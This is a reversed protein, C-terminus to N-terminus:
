GSTVAPVVAATAAPAAPGRGGGGGGGRGRGPATGLCSGVCRGGARRGEGQHPAGGGNQGAGVAAEPQKGISGTLQHHTGSAIDVLSRQVAGLQEDGAGDGLAGRALRLGDVGDIRLAVGAEFARAGDSLQAQTRHQGHREDDFPSYRAGDIDVVTQA